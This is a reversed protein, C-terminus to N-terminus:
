LKKNLVAVGLPAAVDTLVKTIADKLSKKQDKTIQYKTRILRAITNAAELYLDIRDPYKEILDRLKFRLLAIEEDIGEIASAEEMQIM